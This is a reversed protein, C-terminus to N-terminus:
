KATAPQETALLQPMVKDLFGEITKGNCVGEKFDAVFMEEFQPDVHHTGEVFSIHPFEERLLNLYKNKFPCLGILCNALHVAEVGSAALTRVRRFIKEPAYLTPCGACSIVGVLESGEEAYTAFTGKKANFDEFCGISSCAYDQTTNGCTLIGIRKM